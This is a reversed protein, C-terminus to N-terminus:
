RGRNAGRAIAKERKQEHATTELHAQGSEILARAEEDSVDITDGIIHYLGRGSRETDLVVRM